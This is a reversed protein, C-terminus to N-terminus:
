GNDQQRRYMGPTQGTDAKFTRSFYGADAFGARAAIDAMSHRTFELLHKAEVLRRQRIVANPTTGLIRRCLRNLHPTSVGIERAYAELTMASAFHEEVAACFAQAQREHLTQEQRAPLPGLPRADTRDGELYILMLRILTELLAARGTGFNRLAERVQGMLMDIVAFHPSDPEPLVAGGTDAFRMIRAANDDDLLSLRLSIVDGVIDEPFRFGHALGPPVVLIVPGASRFDLDGLRTYVGPTQFLFIQALRQHRHLRITWDHKSSREVITEHHMPDARTGALYEGYLEYTPVTDPM